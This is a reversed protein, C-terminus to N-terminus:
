GSGAKGPFNSAAYFILIRNDFMLMTFSSAESLFVGLKFSYVHYFHLFALSTAPFLHGGDQITGFKSM